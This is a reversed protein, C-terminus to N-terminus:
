RRGCATKSLARTRAWGQGRCHRLPPPAIVKRYPKVPPGARKSATTTAASNTAPHPLLLALIVVVVGEGATERDDAVRVKVLSVTPM